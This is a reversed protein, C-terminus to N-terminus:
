FLLIKQGFVYTTTNAAYPVAPHCTQTFCLNPSSMEEVEEVAFTSICSAGILKEVMFHEINIVGFQSCTAWVCFVPFINFSMLGSVHCVHEHGSCNKWWMSSTCIITHKRKAAINGNAIHYNDESSKM